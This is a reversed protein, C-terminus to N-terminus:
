SRRLAVLLEPARRDYLAAGVRIGALAVVAGTGVGVAGTAWAAVVSGQWAFWAPVLVPSALAVTGISALSQAAITIGAAGPPTNFPSEGSAPVPYPLVVSMVSSVAYGAGLLGLCVGVVPVLLDWRGAVAVGVVGYGPVLAVALVAGPVLRGRRDDRGSTGAAVHLWLAEAEYAVANHESWGLLFAILPGMLLPTWPLDGTYYPVLLALPVLPTMVLSIQYRPDRRWYTLVRAAVAGVPTGPLRALLGLDDGVSAGSDSRSVARPNDVQRRLAHSWLRGVLALLAVALALRVLGTVTAGAAVDGPAAWAWGLPTWAVVQAVSTAVDRLDRDLNAVLSVAPGIVVLLLLGLVAVVDRGRRSSIADTLLASVWRSTTIATLLGLATAVVAVATSALSHSWAVVVGVCLVISAVAPLGVLAAVILGTALDRHPVAFTAFRGPDLTPDSGFSFLPVVTWLVTGAAGALPIVVLAADLSTRFSALIVTLGVVLVAFYVIGIVAGIAQARSRRFINRLLALKLRVLHAVV